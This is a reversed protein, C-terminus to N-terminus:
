EGNVVGQTQSKRNGIPREVGIRLCAKHRLWGVRAEERELRCRVDRWKARSM